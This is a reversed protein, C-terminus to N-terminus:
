GSGAHIGDEFFLCEPISVTHMEARVYATQRILMPKVMPNTVHKYLVVFPM